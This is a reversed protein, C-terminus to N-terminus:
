TLSGSISNLTVDRPTRFNTFGSPDVTKLSWTTGNNYSVYAAGPQGRYSLIWTNAGVYKIVDKVRNENWGSTPLIFPLFGSPTVDSWTIGFDESRLLRNVQSTRRPIRAADLTSGYVALQAILVNNDPNGMIYVNADDSPENHNTQDITLTGGSAIFDRWRESATRYSPNISKLLTDIDVERWNEFNLDCVFWHDNSVTVTVTSGSGPFNPYSVPGRLRIQSLVFDKGPIFAGSNAASIAGLGVTVTSNNDFREFWNPPIQDLVFSSRNIISTTQIDRIDWRFNTATITKGGPTNVVQTKTISSGLSFTTNAECFYGQPTIVGRWKTVEDQERLPWNINDFSRTRRILTGTINSPNGIPSQRITFTLDTWEYFCQVVIQIRYDFTGNDANVGFEPAWTNDFYRAKVDFETWDVGNTSTLLQFSNTFGPQQYLAFFTGQRYSIQNFTWGPNFGSVTFVRRENYLPSVATFSNSTIGGVSLIRRVRTIGGTNFWRTM